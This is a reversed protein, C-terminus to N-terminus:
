SIALDKSIRDWEFTLCGELAILDITNEKYISRVEILGSYAFRTWELVNLRLAFNILNGGSRISADIGDIACFSGHSVLLMRRLEPHNGFPICDNWDKQHYYRQKIAWFIRVSIENIALPIAMTIGHRFDYGKEFIKISLEALNVYEDKLKFKGFNCLQFLEYFPIGLGSGRGIKGRDADRTSGSGVLDSLLHGIWNFLGCSLKALFTDGQLRFSEKKTEVRIVKGNDIFSAKGTFQDLISFILGIISPAHALSILHHNISSMGSLVDEDVYLDKAYRADYNIQFRQELYEICKKLSDPMKKPKGSGKGRKDCKWISQSINKVFDDTKSDTWDGLKSDKPMGVFLSDILGTIVGCFGAIMYDYKDCYAKEMKFEDNLRRAIMQKDSDTLLDELPNDHLEIKNEIIYLEVKELYEEWKSENSIEIFDLEGFDIININERDEANLTLFSDLDEFDNDDIVVKESLLGETQRLLDDLNDLNCDNLSTLKDMGDQLAGIQRSISDQQHKQVSLVTVIEDIKEKKIEM